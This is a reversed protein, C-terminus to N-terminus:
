FNALLSLVLYINLGQNTSVDQFKLLTQGGTTKKTRNQIIEADEVIIAMM